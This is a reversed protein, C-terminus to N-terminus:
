KFFSLFLVEVSVYGTVSFPSGVVPVDNYLVSLKYAQDFPATYSLKYASYLSPNLVSSGPEVSIKFPVSIGVGTHNNIIGIFSGSTYNLPADMHKFFIDQLSVIFSSLSGQLVSNLGIGPVATCIPFSVLVVVPSQSIPISMFYINLFYSPSTTIPVTYRVRIGVVGDLNDFDGIQCLSFIFNVSTINLGASTVINLSVYQIDLVTANIPNSYLDKLTIVFSTSYEQYVNHLGPGSASSLTSSVLSPANLVTFPSGPAEEVGNLKIFLQYKSGSTLSYQLSYTGDSNDVFSDTGKILQSVVTSGDLNSTGILVAILNLNTARNYIGIM